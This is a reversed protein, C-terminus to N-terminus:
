LVELRDVPLCSSCRGIGVVGGLVEVLAAVGALTSVLGCVGTCEGPTIVSGIVGIPEGVEEISASWM